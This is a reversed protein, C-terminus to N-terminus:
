GNCWRALHIATVIRILWLTSNDEVDKWIGLNRRRGALGIPDGRMPELGAGEGREGREEEEIGGTSKREKEHFFFAMVVKEKLDKAFVVCGCSIKLIHTM